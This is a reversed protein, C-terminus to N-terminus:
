RFTWGQQELLPVVRARRHRDARIIVLVAQATQDLDHNVIVHTYSEIAMREEAFEALRRRVQAETDSGRDRLRRELEEVSPPMLYIRVCQPYVHRLLAAGKTDVDLLVDRGQALTADLFARDTGYYHGYVLAYEVFRGEEIGAEFTARDVFHYSVGEVEGPRQQRTTTSVSYALSPDRELVARIVTNKGVGSPGSVIVLVGRVNM